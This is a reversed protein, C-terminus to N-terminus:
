GNHLNNYVQFLKKVLQQRARNGMMEMGGIDELSSGVMEAFDSLELGPPWDSVLQVMQDPTLMTPDFTEVIVDFSTTVHLPTQGLLSKTSGSHQEVVYSQQSTKRYTKDLDSPKRFSVGNEVDAFDVTEYVAKRTQPVTPEKHQQIANQILPFKSLQVDVPIAGNTCLGEFVVSYRSNTATATQVGNHGHINFPTTHSIVTTLDRTKSVDFGQQKLQAILKTKM